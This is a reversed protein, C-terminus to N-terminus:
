IKIYKLSLSNFLVSISSLVMAGAALEPSLHGTAAFAIGVLNYIFAWFINQKIKWMTKKSLKISKPINMLDDKLLVVDGTEIAVDTGTGIAFGIDAIALAPADNIGDGVMAVFKGEKRLHSIVEAKDEPLVEAIVNDIGVESAIEHATKNNDGTLMIVNIRMKKLITIAEKANKKISDNFIIIAQARGNVAMLVTTKNQEYLVNKNQQNNLDELNVGNEIMFKENGILITNNDYLASVGKGPFAEFKQPDPIYENNEQRLKMYIAEGIPHESKKEAITALKLIESNEIQYNKDDLFIIELVTLKGTTITGTKDFVITNIRRINELKEGNKILIGRKAGQGVGVMIATPTALGLACPCSVVLVSVAFLIPKEIFYLNQDFVFFYWIIFTVVSIIIVLPVFIGCVSDALKQIQAKSSQAEEVFKIIQALKTESGVGTAKFKFTGFKNISAGTVFDGVGKEVNMSEGTLMSEDVSSSGELIIGDVPIKEGPRVIVINNIVVNEISIDKELNGEQVRATKAKLEFITQIAKSTKNKTVSELYKGILILTIVFMSAEYYVRKMGSGDAAGYISIYLSYLFTATTGIVVLVDMNAIKCRLAFFAKKYFRFGILFQVPTALVLQLRWDHLFLTKYRLLDILLSFKTQKLAPFPICCANLGGLLMMIVMPSCLLVSIIVLHKLKKSEDYARNNLSSGNVSDYPEFGIHEIKSMIYQLNTKEDDYEIFARESAYNINSSIIGNFKELSSEIIVSCLTCTMGYIKLTGKQIM